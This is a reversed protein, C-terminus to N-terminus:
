GQNRQMPIMSGSHVRIDSTSKKRQTSKSLTALDYRAFGEWSSKHKACLSSECM